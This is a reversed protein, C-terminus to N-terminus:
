MVILPNAIVHVGNELPRQFLVGVHVFLTEYYSARDRELWVSRRVVVGGIFSFYNATEVFFREAHNAQYDVDSEIKLIRPELLVSFDASRIESNVVVLDVGTRVASLVRAVAGPRLLDDDTMLWCYEGLAYGVSKDFDTDVGSNEM